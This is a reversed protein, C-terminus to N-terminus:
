LIPTSLAVILLGVENFSFTNGCMIIITSGGKGEENMQYVQRKYKQMRRCKKKACTAEIDPKKAKAEPTEIHIKGKAEPVDATCWM